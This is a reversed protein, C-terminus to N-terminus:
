LPLQVRPPRQRALDVCESYVIHRIYAKPSTIQRKQLAHWFKIRSRQALEDIELALESGDSITYGFHQPIAKQALGFIYGDYQNLMNNISSDNERPTLSSVDNVM